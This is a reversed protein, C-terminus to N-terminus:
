ESCCASSTVCSYYKQQNHMKLVEHRILIFLKSVEQVYPQYLVEQPVIHDLQVNM